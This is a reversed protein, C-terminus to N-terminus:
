KTTTRSTRKNESTRPKKSKKSACLTANQKAFDFDVQVAHNRIVLKDVHEDVVIRQVRLAFHLELASRTAEGRWHSEEDAKTQMCLQIKM